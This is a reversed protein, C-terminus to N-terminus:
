SPLVGIQKLMGMLDYFLNEEIIEGNKWHAVTCFDVKFSKNTPQLVQGNATTMPGKMTGTFEAITCTWDGQGFMVKYPNNVLHQDPFTKFFAISEREHADIGLTPPQNPWRVVCDKAHRKRFTTMEQANWSDDLTRILDLNEETSM